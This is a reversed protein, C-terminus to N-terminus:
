VIDKSLKIKINEIVKLNKKYLRFHTYKDELLISVKIYNKNKIEINIDNIHDLYMEISNIILIRKGLYIRNVITIYNSNVIAISYFLLGYENLIIGVVGFVFGIVCFVSLIKHLLEIGHSNIWEVSDIRKLIRMYINKEINISLVVLFLIYGLTLMIKEMSNIQDFDSILSNISLIISLFLIIIFNKFREKSIM